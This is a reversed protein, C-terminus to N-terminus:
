SAPAGALPVRRLRMRARVRDVSTRRVCDRVNLRGLQGPDVGASRLIRRLLRYVDSPSCPAGRATLPFARDGPIREGERRDLWAALAEAILRSRWVSAPRDPRNDRLARAEAIRLAAIEAPRLRGSLVLLAIARNRVQRWERPARYFTRMLAARQEPSLVFPLPRTSLPYEEMLPAAPNDGRVGAARMAEFALEFIELLWRCRRARASAPRGREFTALFEKLEPTTAEVVHRRRATMFNRLASWARAAPHMSATAPRFAGRLWLRFAEDPAEMWPSTSAM